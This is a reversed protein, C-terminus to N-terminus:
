EDGAWGGARVDGDLGGAGRGAGCGGLSVLAAAGPSARPTPPRTCLGAQARLRVRGSEGAGCAGAGRGVRGSSAGPGQQYCPDLPVAAGPGARGRSGPGPDRAGTTWGPGGRPAQPTAEAAGPGGRPRLAARLGRPSELRSPGPRCPQTHPCGCRPHCSTVGPSFDLTQGTRGQDGLAAPTWFGALPWVSNMGESGQSSVEKSQDEGLHGPLASPCPM